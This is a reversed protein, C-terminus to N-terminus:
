HNELLTAPFDWLPLSILSCYRPCLSFILTAPKVFDPLIGVDGCEAAVNLTARDKYLVVRDRPDGSSPLNQLLESIMGVRRTRIAEDLALDRCVDADRASRIVQIAAPRDKMRLALARTFAWSIHDDSQAVADREQRYM